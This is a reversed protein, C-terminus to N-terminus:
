SLTSVVDTLLAVEQACVDLDREVAGVEPRGEAFPQARVDGITPGHSVGRPTIGSSAACDVIRSATVGNAGRENARRTARPSTSACFHAARSGTGGNALVPM